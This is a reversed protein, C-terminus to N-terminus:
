QNQPEIRAKVRDYTLGHKEAISAAYSRGGPARRAIKYTRVAPDDPSVASVVSVVRQDISALAELFTVLVCRSGLQLIRDVIQQALFYADGVTTSSFIENVIIISHATAHALIEQMRLLDDELKSRLNEVREEREFHTYIRDFLGLSASSGPVPCGLSALYHLQGLTRAFTTKGGQNPGSVVVIREEDRLSVDNVVVKAGRDLLRGALAVDFADRAVTSGPGLFMQPYCFPLGNLVFRRVYRLYAVYFHIERDVAAITSDTFSEYRKCFEALKAFTVPFLRAVRSLINEEVHNMEISDPRDILYNRTERQRFKAFSQAVEASYDAQQEYRSVTVTNDKVHVSYSLEDLEDLLRRAASTRSRFSPSEVYDLLYAEFARLGRSNVSAHSLNEGLDIVAQSYAQSADLYLRQSQLPSRLRAAKTLQERVRRMRSAFETVFEFTEENELDRMVDHRYAIAGTTALPSLFFPKLGYEDDGVIANIIKDLNLDILCERTQSSGDSIGPGDENLISRFDVSPMGKTKPAM